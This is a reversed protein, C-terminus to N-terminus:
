SFEISALEMETGRRLEASVAHCHPCEGLFDPTAFEVACPACWCTAPVEEIELEAGEAATGQCVIDWAFRLAEPVVGSMTGVRLRLRHVREGGSARATYLAMRVANEMLSVEHM